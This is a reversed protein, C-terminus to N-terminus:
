FVIKVNIRLITNFHHIDNLGSKAEDPLGNKLFQAATGLWESGYKCGWFV